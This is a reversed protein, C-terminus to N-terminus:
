LVSFPHKIKGKIVYCKINGRMQSWIKTSNKKQFQRKCNQKSTESKLLRPFKLAIWKREIMQTVVRKKLTRNQKPFRKAVTNLYAVLQITIWFCLVWSKKLRLTLVKSVYFLVCFWWRDIWAVVFHVPVSFVCSRFNM